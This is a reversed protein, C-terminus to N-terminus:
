TGGEVRQLSKAERRLSFCTFMKLRLHEEFDNRTNQREDEQVKVLKWLEDREAKFRHDEATRIQQGSTTYTRSTTRSRADRFNTRDDCVATDEMAHTTIVAEKTTPSTNTGDSITPGRTRPTQPRPSTTMCALSSERRM